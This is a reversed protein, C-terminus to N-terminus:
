VYNLKRLLPGAEQEITALAEESLERRGNGVSDPQVERVAELFRMRSAPEHIGLFALLRNAEPIPHAVLDEYRLAYYRDPPLGASAELAAEVHRRWVWICRHIDSTTEFERVRDPEIYFRAYPGMPYGGPERMGSHASAMQLWPKKSHSLAADRGDRLIHVFSADPFADHLFSILFCNRPTKEVFRLDGDAHLRMLCGYVNRYFLRAKAFSWTGDYVFRAAYKTAIPEFHYSFEPLVSICDGLFTTGSRPSGIIFVPRRLNPVALRILRTGSLPRVKPRYTNRGSRATRYALKTLTLLASM